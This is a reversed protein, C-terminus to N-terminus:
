GASSLEWGVLSSQDSEATAGSGRPPGGVGALPAAGQAAALPSPAGVGPKEQCWMAEITQGRVPGWGSQTSREADWRRGGPREATGVRPVQASLPDPCRVSGRGRVLSSYNAPQSGTASQSHQEPRATASVSLEVM